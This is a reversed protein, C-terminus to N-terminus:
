FNNIRRVIIFGGLAVRKYPGGPQPFLKIADATAYILPQLKM